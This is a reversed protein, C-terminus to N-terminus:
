ISPLHLTPLSRFNLKKTGPSLCSEDFHKRCVAFKRLVDNKSMNKLMPNGTREVWLQFDDDIRPFSHKTINRSSDCKLVCCKNAPM